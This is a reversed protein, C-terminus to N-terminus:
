LCLGLREKVVRLTITARERAAHAGQHMLAELSEPADM